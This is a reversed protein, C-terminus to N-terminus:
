FVMVDDAYQLHSIRPGAEGFQLGTVLGANNAKDILGSFAESALTFLLPSLPDGQRLGRTMKFFGHAKGNLLVSIHASALCSKIWGRWKKGFGM